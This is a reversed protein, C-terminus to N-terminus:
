LGGAIKPLIVIESNESITDTLKVRKGNALVAFFKSELNLEKLLEAVTKKSKVLYTKLTGTTQLEELSQM